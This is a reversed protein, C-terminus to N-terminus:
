KKPTKTFYSDVKTPTKPQRNTSSKLRFNDSKKFSAKADPTPTVFDDDSSQSSLVNEKENADHGVVTADADVSHDDVEQLDGDNIVGISTKADSKSVELKRSKVDEILKSFASKNDKLIEKRKTDILKDDTKRDYSFISALNKSAGSSSTSVAGLTVGVSSLNQEDRKM